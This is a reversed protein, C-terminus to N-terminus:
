NLPFPGVVDHTGSGCIVLVFLPFGIENATFQSRGM